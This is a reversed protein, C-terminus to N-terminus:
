RCVLVMLPLHTEVGTRELEWFPKLQRQDSRMVDDMGGQLRKKYKGCMYIYMQSNFRVRRVFPSHM